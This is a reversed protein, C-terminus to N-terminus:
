IYNFLYYYIYYYNFKKKSAVSSSGNPTSADPDVVHKRKGLRIEDVGLPVLNEAM